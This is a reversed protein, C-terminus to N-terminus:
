HTRVTGGIGVPEQTLEELKRAAAGEELARRALPVCSAWAAGKGAAYLILAANMV